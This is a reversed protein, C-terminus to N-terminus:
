PKYKYTKVWFCFLRQLLDSFPRQTGRIPQGLEVKRVKGSGRSFVKTIISMPWDNHAAQRDKPLVIEGEQLNRHLKNWKSRYQLTPLYEQRWRTWFRNALVQVQRWQKALLEKDTFNGPIPPCQLHYSSHTRLIM